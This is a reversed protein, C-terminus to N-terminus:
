EGLRKLLMPVHVQDAKYNGTLAYIITNVGFRYALQRQDAGGPLVAFPTNGNEDVAWAHAWDASGIIVPSVDDNEAEGERAVWVPQEAYRGPFDHLMYFTHALVHHDTMTMLPPIPLGATVRRLASRTGPADGAYPGAESQNGSNQSGSDQGQTDILLIGGHAMFSTLAATMAPSPAADPTIPWYLLPYYSLDDQGPRVGDPHGLMASTRANTYDSLGQLGQRSVTDIDDHGTIVYALRTELAAGPVSKAGPAPHGSSSPPSSSSAVPATATAPPLAAARDASPESAPASVAPAPVPAPPSAPASAPPLGETQASAFAPVTLVCALLLSVGQKGSLLKSLGRLSLGARMALVLLGDLLLLAVAACLLFPALATDPRRGSPSTLVGVPAAAALANIQSSANLARRAARPGYLGPPHAPSAATHAFESAKLGRAAPPPPGLVGDGDLTLVPALLTDDAPITVGNAHDTLRQLMAVFLGSLPLSSWDATSSVHFLIIDGKGLSAHTVLPTGDALRAWSHAALDAVPSALVQRSITVDAPIDLGHFPSSADFPALKQPAGWTMTGGLQRSGDLLTVPLLDATPDAPTGNAADHGPQTDLDDGAPAGPANTSGDTNTGHQAGALAPGAFRILTGGNKVWDTVKQRITPNALTGDPAIIVSLPQALLASATGEHLDATPALARRLYFLPGILPTDAAGSTMLGIPRLRDGEDFLLTTIASSQAALSLQDIRNRVATPLTVPVDMQAAGAPLALPLVALTGGDQAHVRISLSRPAPSPLALLRAMQTSNREVAPALALVSAEPFRIEQVSGFARLAHAFADDGASAVGDALYQVSGETHPVTALAHAAAARDTRWPAPRMSDLEQRVSAAARPMPSQTAHGDATPATRLFLISRGAHDADDVLGQATAIRRGWDSASFFGDDMVLLLPGHGSSPLRDGPLVPQALGLVLCTVAALRVLLLWLPSRVADTQHPHLARLLAIAPFIQARPAPPTARLLWWVLPLTLLGFLAVPALFIM